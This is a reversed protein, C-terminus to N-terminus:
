QLYRARLYQLRATLRPDEVEEDMATALELINKCESVNTQISVLDMLALCANLKLVSHTTAKAEKIVERALEVQQKSTLSKDDLRALLRQVKPYGQFPDSLEISGRPQPPIKWAALVLPHPAFCFIAILSAVFFHTSAAM